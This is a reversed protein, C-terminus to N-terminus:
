TKAIAEVTILVESQYEILYKSKTKQVIEKTNWSLTTQNKIYKKYGSLTRKPSKNTEDFWANKKKDYYKPM